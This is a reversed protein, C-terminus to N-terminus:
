DITRSTEAVFLGAFFFPMRELYWSTAGMRSRYTNHQCLNYRREMRKKTDDLAIWFNTSSCGSGCGASLTCGTGGM